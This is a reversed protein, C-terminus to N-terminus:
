AGTPTSIAPWRTRTTPTSSDVTPDTVGDLVLTRPAGFRDGLLDILDQPDLDGPLGLHRPGPGRLRTLADSITAQTLEM